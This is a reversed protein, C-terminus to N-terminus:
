NFLMTAGLAGGFVGLESVLIKVNKAAPSIVDKEVEKKISPLIFEKAGMVGGGLVVAEPDLINIINAIGVGLNHGLQAFADRAAEEGMKAREYAEKSTANLMKELVKSSAMEELDLGQDLVMHGGESAAGHSGKVIAGDIMLASGIGRGLIFYFVNKLGKAVGVKTEAILFCPTDQEIKINDFKLKEKLLKKIPVNNLYPINYSKLIKERHLDLDAALAVGIGSIKNEAAKSLKKNFSELVGLLGVLADPLDIVRSDIIKKDKVLAAKVSSGGIDFGIHYM